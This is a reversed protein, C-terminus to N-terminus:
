EIVKKLRPEKIPKGVLPDDASVDEESTRNFLRKLPALLEEISPTSGEGPPPALQPVRLAPEDVSPETPASQESAREAILTELRAVIKRDDAYTLPALKRIAAFAEERRRLVETPNSAVEMIRRAHEDFIPALRDTPGDVNVEVTPREELSAAGRIRPATKRETKEEREKEEFQVVKEEVADRAFQALTTHRKKAVIKARKHLSAPVNTVITATQM